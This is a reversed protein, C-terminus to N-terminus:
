EMAEERARDYDEDCHCVDGCRYCSTDPQDCDGDYDEHCVMCVEEIRLVGDGEVPEPEPRHPDSALVRDLAINLEQTLRAIDDM